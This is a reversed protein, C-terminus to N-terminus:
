GKAYNAASKFELAVVPVNGVVWAEHGPAIRYADGPGVDGESGDDHVVHMQGSVMYGLHDAQCSDTKVVPKICESWKWGPQLTFRGVESDGIKVVEVKTKDPTRTEDPKDLSKHELNGM